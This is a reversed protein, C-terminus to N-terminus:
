GGAALEHLVVVMSAATSRRDAGAARLRRNALVAAAAVTLEPELAACRRSTAVGRAGRASLSSARVTFSLHPAPFIASFLSHTGCGAPAPLRVSPAVGLGLGAWRAQAVAWRAQWGREPGDGRLRRRKSKPRGFDREEPEKPPGVSSPAM